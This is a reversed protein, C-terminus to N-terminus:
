RDASGPLIVRCTTGRGVETEVTIEAGLLEALRRSIFLGLAVGGRGNAAQGAARDFPHFLMARDHQSIGVGTDVVEVQVSGPVDGERARLTVGGTETFAIGNAVLHVLIRGLVRPDTACSVPGSPDVELDLGKEAARAQLSSRVEELIPLLASARHEVAVEGRELRALEVLNDTLWLMTRGASRVETLHKRQVDNLPGPLEMLLLDSFGIIVNLPSRLEHGMGTMVGDLGEVVRGRDSM